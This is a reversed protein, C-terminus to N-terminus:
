GTAALQQPHDFMLAVRQISGIGISRVVTCDTLQEAALVAQGKTWAVGLRMRQGAVLLSPHSVDLLVGSSSVNNTQGGLYRGTDACQLKVPRAVTFRADRRRETM